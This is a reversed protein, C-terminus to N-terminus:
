FIVVCPGHIHCVQATLMLAKQVEQLNLYFDSEYDLCVDVSLSIKTAMKKMKLEQQVISPYCVDLIVDYNKTYEGVIKNADNIAKNCPKSLHHPNAYTYDDFDCDDTLALDIEFIMEHSWLYEYTTQADRDM